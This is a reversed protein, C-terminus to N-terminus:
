MVTGSQLQQIFDSVREIDAILVGTPALGLQALAEDVKERLPLHSPLGLELEIVQAQPCM